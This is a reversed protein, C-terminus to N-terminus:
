IDLNFSLLQNTTLVYAKKAAEDIMLSVFTQEAKAPYQAKLRGDQQYVILRKPELIYAYKSDTPIAFAKADELPPDIADLQIGGVRALLGQNFTYISNPMLVYIFGDVIISRAPSLDVPEKLWDALVGFNPARNSRLIQQETPSV